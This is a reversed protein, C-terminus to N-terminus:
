LVILLMKIPKLQKNHTEQKGPSRGPEVRGKAPAGGSHLRTAAVLVGSVLADPGVLTRRGPRGPRGPRPRFCM